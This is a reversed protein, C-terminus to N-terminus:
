MWGAKKLHNYALRIHEPKMLKQKRSSWDMIASVAEDANQAAPQEKTSVWHVSSLLEMGYPTEFGTILESVRELRKVAGNGEESLFTDAEKQAGSHLTLPVNPGRDGSYGHIYHGDLLELVKNLNDAYPGYLHKSYKLKLPEGAEQLFYALKQVELQTLEYDLGLYKEM